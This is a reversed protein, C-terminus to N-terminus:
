LFDDIDTQQPIHRVFVNFDKSDQFVPLPKQFLFKDPSRYTELSEQQPPPIEVPPLTHPINLAPNILTACPADSSLTRSSRKRHTSTHSTAATPSPRPSLPLSSLPSSPATNRQTPVGCFKPQLNTNPLSTVLKPSPIVTSSVTASTNEGPTPTTKTLFDTITYCTSSNVIPM